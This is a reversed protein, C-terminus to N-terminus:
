RQEQTGKREWLRGERLSRNGTNTPPEAKPPFARAYKSHSDEWVTMGIIKKRGELLRADVKEDIQV